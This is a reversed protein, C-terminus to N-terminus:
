FFIALGGSLEQGSSAKDPDFITWNRYDLRITIQKRFTIEFGGGAALAMLTETEQAFNDAKPRLHAAGVGVNLFPGIAAGPILRLTWGLGALYLDDDQRPSLGAFGEIAFYSDILWAPRLLFAGETDIVGASFSIEVDSYPVPSPGLIARRIARGMRRFVGPNEDDVVEFPFVLEGLVWGSTGDELQVRFWFGSGGRELVQFVEGREAVYLERYSAGPGTHVPARQSIVRLYADAAAPRPALALLAGALAIALGRAGIRARVM